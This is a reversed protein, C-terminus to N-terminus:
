IGHLRRKLSLDARLIKRRREVAGPLHDNVQTAEPMLDTALQHTTQHVSEAELRDERLRVQALTALIVLDIRIQEAPERDLSAVVHPRGIM